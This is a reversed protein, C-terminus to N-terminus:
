FQGKIYDSWIVHVVTMLIKDKHLPHSYEMEYSSKKLLQAVALNESLLPARRLQTGKDCSGVFRVVM